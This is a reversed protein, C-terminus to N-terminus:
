RAALGLKLAVPKGAEASIKEPAAVLCVASGNPEIMRLVPIPQLIPAFELTPKPNCPSFIYLLPRQFM